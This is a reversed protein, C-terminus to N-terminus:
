EANKCKIIRLLELYKTTYKSNKGVLILFTLSVIILSLLIVGSATLVLGDHIKILDFVKYYGYFGFLMLWTARSTFKLLIMKIFYILIKFINNKNVLEEM